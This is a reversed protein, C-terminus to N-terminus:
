EEKQKFGADGVLHKIVMKKNNVIFKHTRSFIGLFIEEFIYNDNNNEDKEVKDPNGFYEKVTEISYQNDPAIRFQKGFKYLKVSYWIACGLGFVAGIAIAMMENSEHGGFLRLSGIYDILMGFIGGFLPLVIITEGIIDGLKFENMKEKKAM